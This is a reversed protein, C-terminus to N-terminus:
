TQIAAPYSGLVKLFICEDRLTELARQVRLESAHGEFDVYFLRHLLLRTDLGLQAGYLDNDTTAVPKRAGFPM